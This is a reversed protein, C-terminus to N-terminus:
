DIMATHARWHAARRPVLIRAPRVRAATLHAITFCTPSASADYEGTDCSLTLDTHLYRHTSDGDYQFTECLFARFIRTSTSPVVLFTLGLALPLTRAM